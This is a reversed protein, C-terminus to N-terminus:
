GADNYRVEPVGKYFGSARGVHPRAAARPLEGGRADPPTAGPQAASGSAWPGRATGHRALCTCPVTCYRINAPVAM